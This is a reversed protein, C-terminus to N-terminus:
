IEYVKEGVSIRIGKKPKNKDRKPPLFMQEEDSWIYGEKIHNLDCRCWPHVPGLTPLWQSQKKGINTGNTRLVDLKFVVPKSGIGGTTYFKICFRCAQPYVTKYVLAEKNGLKEIGAAKGEQFIYQMETDAIRGLDLSWSNTKHGIESVISNVTDREVVAREVSGKVTAEFLDRYSQGKGLVIGSINGGVKSSLNKLHSYTRQKAFSLSAKERTNLPIYQGRRLYQKFDNYNLTSANKDGLAAALRGFYFNQEYPTFPTKLDKLDIGFQKLLKVDEKTLVDTGVNTGIFLTHNFDIIRLIEQIKQQTFLMFNFVKNKFLCYKFTM